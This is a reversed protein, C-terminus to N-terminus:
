QRKVPFTRVGTGLTQTLQNRLKSGPAQNLQTGAGQGLAAWQRVTGAESGWHDAQGMHALVAQSTDESMQDWALVQIKCEGSEAPWGPETLRDTLNVMQLYFIDPSHIHKRSLMHSTKRTM